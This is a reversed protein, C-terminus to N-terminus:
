NMPTAPAGDENIRHRAYAIHDKPFEVWDFAEELFIHTDLAIQSPDDLTGIIIM